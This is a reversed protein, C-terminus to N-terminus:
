LYKSLILAIFDQLHKLTDKNNKKHNEKYVYRYLLDLLEDLLDEYREDFLSLNYLKDVYHQYPGAINYLDNAQIQNMQYNLYNLDEM